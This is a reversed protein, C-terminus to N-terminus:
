SLSAACALAANVGNTIARSTVTAGSLADIDGGDKTVAVTGSVGVFQERFAVGKATDQKAVDGLGPTEAMDIFSIGSVAHDATVGVMMHIDAQSGGIVVEIAWGDNGMKHVATVHGSDDQYNSLTEPEADSDLVTRIAAATKEATIAAIKDATLANVGSLLLAVVATVLFLIATLKLVYKVNSESKM